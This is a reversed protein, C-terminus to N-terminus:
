NVHLVVASMDRIDSSIGRWWCHRLMLEKTKQFGKHGAAPTDHLEELAQRRLDGAPLWLKWDTRSQNVPDIGRNYILTNRVTYERRGLTLIGREAEGIRRLLAKAEENRELINRIRRTGTVASQTDWIVM